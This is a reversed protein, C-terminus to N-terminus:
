IVLFFPDLNVSGSNCIELGTIDSVQPDPNVTITFTLFVQCEEM